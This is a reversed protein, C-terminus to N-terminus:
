FTYSISHLFSFESMYTFDLIDSWPDLDPQPTNCLNKISPHTKATGISRRAAPPAQIRKQLPMVVSSQLYNIM